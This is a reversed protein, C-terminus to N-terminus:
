LVISHERLYDLIENLARSKDESDIWIADEEKRFWTFQRKAYHRTNKKILNVADELSYRGELYNIIEKYGIAAMSNLNKSYGMDLLDKVENVLGDEIMKDVRKNIDKYLIERKKYLIFVIFKNSFEDRDQKKAWTNSLTSFKQGSIKIVELARIIRKEDQKSISLAYEPDLILLEKYLSEIGEKKAKVEFSKRLTDSKGISHLRYRLTRFYLGTGGVIIPLKGRKEIDKIINRAMKRYIGANFEEDPFVIDILHYPIGDLEEKKPKATGIDMYKYIQMSDCSVIEGDIKKALKIGIDTKGSATPGLIAIINKM